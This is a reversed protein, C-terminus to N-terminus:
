VESETLNEDFYTVSAWRRKDAKKAQGELPDYEEAIKKV